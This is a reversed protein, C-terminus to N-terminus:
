LDSDKRLYFRVLGYQNFFTDSEKVVSISINVMKNNQVDKPVDYDYMDINDSLYVRNFSFIKEIQKTSGNIVIKITADTSILGTDIYHPKGINMGIVYRGRYKTFMNINLNQKGSRFDVPDTYYKSFYDDPPFMNYYITQSAEYNIAVAVWFSAAALYLVYRLVKHTRNVGSHETMPLAWM